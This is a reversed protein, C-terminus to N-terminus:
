RANLLRRLRKLPPAPAGQVEGIGQPSHAATPAEHTGRRDDRGTRLHQDQAMPLRFPIGFTAQLTM